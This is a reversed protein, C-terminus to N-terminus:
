TTDSDSAHDDDYNEKRLLKILLRAWQQGQQAALVVVYLPYLPEWDRPDEPDPPLKEAKPVNGFAILFRSSKIADFYELWRNDPAAGLDDPQKTVYATVYHLVGKTTKIRRIDVITSGRSANGWERSLEEQPFFRGTTIIHLHPHWHDRKANYTIELIAYGGKVHHQWSKRQRLRRFSSKLNLIQTKLPASTSRMTLTILRFDTQPACRLAIDLRRQLKSAANHQCRPCCRVRCANCVLRVRNTSPSRQIWADSGCKEMRAAYPQHNQSTSLIEIWRQHQKSWRKFLFRQATADAATADVSTKRNDLSPTDPEPQYKSTDM